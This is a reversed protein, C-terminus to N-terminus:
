LKIQSAYIYGIFNITNYHTTTNAHMDSRIGLYFQISNFQHLVTIGLFPKKKRM